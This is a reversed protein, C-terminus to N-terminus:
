EGLQQHAYVKMAEVLFEHLGLHYLECFQQFNKDECYASALRLYSTQNFSWLPEILLYHQHVLLQVAKDQPKCGVDISEAMKRYFTDGDGKFKDWDAQAWHKLKEWSDNMQEQTLIGKGVLYNEYEKQIDTNQLRIPDFFEEVQMTLEGRLHRMTNDITGLMSKIRRLKEQLMAKQSQMSSIKDFADSSLVQRIDSLSFDLERYFLIHQLLLAQEEEYYRYQNDGVYAPKLLAIEDYFRLTRASVGSLKALQKITYAMDNGRFSLCMM